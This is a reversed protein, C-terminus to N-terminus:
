IFGGWFVVTNEFDSFGNTEYNMVLDGLLMSQATQLKMDKLIMEKPTYSFQTKLAEIEFGRTASLSISQVNAFFEPGIIRFEKAVAHVKKLDFLLPSSLNEDTIKIHSNEIVVDDGFLKFISSRKTGSNFSNVFTYMNDKLEDKYTKVFLKADTLKIYGLSVDGKIANSFSLINTQVQKSYILTDQHHDKIHVGRADIKGLWNLGIRDISIEADYVTQLHDTLKVALKTQVSPLSLFIVLLTVLLV